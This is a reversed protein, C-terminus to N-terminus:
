SPGPAPAAAYSLEFYLKLQPNFSLKFDGRDPSNVGVFDLEALGRRKAEMINDFMLRTSAGTHRLAPENAAFLYYARRSDYLFLCMGATGEPGRCSSLRGYGKAIADAGISRAISLQAPDLAIGQRAFTRAYIDLFEEVDREERVTYASSKKLEQRRCARVQAVYTGSEIATLDLVATYRPRAVFLGASAGWNHWLFPRLDAFNWSLAMDIARHRAVLEAVVFETVRFDDVVTKQNQQAGPARVFLIGQYPTFAARVINGAADQVAALLALTRHADQVAYRKFPAGLCRLFASTSFVTGQPSQGVWADWSADDTIEALRLQKPNM